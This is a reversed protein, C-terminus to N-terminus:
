FSDIKPHCLLSLLLRIIQNVSTNQTINIYFPSLLMQISYAALVIKMIRKLPPCDIILIEFFKVLFKDNLYNTNKFNRAFFIM